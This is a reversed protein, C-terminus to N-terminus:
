NSFVEKVAEPSYGFTVAARKCLDHFRYCNDIDENEQFILEVSTGDSYYQQFEYTTNEM